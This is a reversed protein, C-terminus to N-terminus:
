WYGDAWRADSDCDGWHKIIQNRTAVAASSCTAAICDCGCGRGDQVKGTIPGGRLLGCWVKSETRGDTRRDRGPKYSLFPLDWFNQTPPYKEWSVCLIILNEVNLFYLDLDYLKAFNRWRRLNCSISCITDVISAMCKWTQLHYYAYM